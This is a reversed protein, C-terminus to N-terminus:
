HASFMTKSIQGTRLITFILAVSYGCMKAMNWVMDKKDVIDTIVSNFMSKFFALAIIIFFAQFALAFVGRAWSNGVQRFENNMWTAMPIPAVSLYMVAEITRSCLVVIITVFLGFVAILTIFALGLIILLRYTEYDKLAETLAADLNQYSALDGIYGYAKAAINAGEVFVLSVFVFSKGVLTLAIETKIIWKFFISTDFDRMNNGSTVMQFMDSVSVIAVITLALPVISNQSISQISSWLGSDIDAPSNKLYDSMVGGLGANHAGQYLLKVIQKFCNKTGGMLLDRFGQEISEWIDDMFDARIPRIFTLIQFFMRTTINM